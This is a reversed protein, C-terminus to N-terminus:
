LDDSNAGVIFFCLMVFCFVVYVVITMAMGWNM